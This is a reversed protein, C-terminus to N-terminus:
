IARLLREVEDSAEAAARWQAQLDEVELLRSIQDALGEVEAAPLEVDM